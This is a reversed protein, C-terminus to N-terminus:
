DGPFRISVSDGAVPTFKEVDTMPAPFRLIDLSHFTVILDGDAARVTGFVTQSIAAKDAATPDVSMRHVRWMVRDEGREGVTVYFKRM